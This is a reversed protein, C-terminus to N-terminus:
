YIGIPPPPSPTPQPPPPLDAESFSEDDQACLGMGERTIERGRESLDVLFADNFLPMAETCNDLLHHALGHIYYCQELRDAMPWNQADMLAICKEFSEISGEYNRRTYRVMGLQRHAEPFTDDLEIAQECAEQANADDRQRFYTECKRTWAKVNRPDNALVRDLAQIAADYNDQITYYPVLEFYLADLRPHIQIAQEYQSIALQWQGTFALSLALARRADVSMGDLEIAKQAEEQALRWRNQARYAMSLYAHAEAWGPALETARLAEAAGEDARGNEILALAHAARALASDAQSDAIGEGVELASEARFRFGRGEYSGYILVRVYEFSIGVDGPELAVAQGYYDIATALDGEWYADDAQKALTVADPTATAAGSVLGVVQAQVANFRWIVALVIAMSMLWVLFFWFAGRRRSRRGYHLASRDRRIQMPM